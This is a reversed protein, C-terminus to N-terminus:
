HRGGGLAQYLNVTAQLEDFRDTVQSLQASLLTQQATLVELYTTNGHTMLLQTSRVADELSEIQHTRLDIKGKATQAQTLADNVEKGANLVTQQFTLKAEEQQAKAIKLQAINAGKNFLPQTLSGVASLLLKGPNVIYSGASNTWGASGSLRLSPYFNSRASATGYFAQALAYEASRVDPRNSLMQVPIGIALDPTLSQDELRGREIDQPTEGLLVALTNETERITQGLDKVSTEISYCTAETQSVAAETTMGAAMLAQTTRLSELWKVATETTIEYQRDLM